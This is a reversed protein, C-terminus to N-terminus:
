GHSGHPVRYKLVLHCGTKGPEERKTLVSSVIRWNILCPPVRLLFVRTESNQQTKGEKCQEHSRPRGCTYHPRANPPPERYQTPIIAEASTWHLVQPKDAQKVGPSVQKISSIPLTKM